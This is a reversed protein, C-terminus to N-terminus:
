SCCNMWCAAPACCRRRTARDTRDARFNCCTSATAGCGACAPKWPTRVRGASKLSVKTALFVSTGELAEGFSRKRPVTVTDPATDFYSVGLELARRIAGIAAARDRRDGAHYPALYNTLGTVAGGFGIRSVPVGAPGFAAMLTTNATM